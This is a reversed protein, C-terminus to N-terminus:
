LSALYTLDNYERPPPSQNSLEIHIDPVKRDNKGLMVSCNSSLHTSPMYHHHYQHHHHHHEGSQTIREVPYCQLAQLSSVVDHRHHNVFTSIVQQYSQSGVYRDIQRDDYRQEDIYAELMKVQRDKSWTDQGIQIHDGHTEVQRDISGKWRSM